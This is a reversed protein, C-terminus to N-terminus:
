SVVTVWYYYILINVSLSMSVPSSTSSSNVTNPAATGSAAIFSRSSAPLMAGALPVNQQNWASGISNVGLNADFGGGSTGSAMTNGSVAGWSSWGSNQGVSPDYINTLSKNGFLTATIQQSLNDSWPSFGNNGNGGGGGLNGLSPMGYGGANSYVAQFDTANPQMQSMHLHSGVGTLLNQQLHTPLANVNLNPPLPPPPVSMDLKLAAGGVPPIMAAAAPQSTGMFGNALPATSVPATTTSISVEVGQSSNSM